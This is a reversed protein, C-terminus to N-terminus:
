SNLNGTAPSPRRARADFQGEALRELRPRDKAFLAACAARRAVDVRRELPQLHVDGAERAIAEDDRAVAPGYRELRGPPVALVDSAHAIAGPLRRRRQVRCNSRVRRQREVDDVGPHITRETSALIVHHVRAASTVILKRHVAVFSLAPPQGPERAQAVRRPGEAHSTGYRAALKRIRQVQARSSAPDTVRVVVGNRGTM